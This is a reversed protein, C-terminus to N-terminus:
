RRPNGSVSHTRYSAITGAALAVLWVAAPEPIPRLVAIADIDLGGGASATPFPDNIPNGLLDFTGFQPDLSGVADIIRVQTVANIDLLPSVGALEALDFATGVGAPHKGVLNRIDRPDLGDFAGLQTTTPTLSVSAFRFFNTGDSSVEVFGLEAFLIGNFAFSNEFVAFDPGARDALPADFAVTISGGDGLSVVKTFDADADSVGLANNEVGFSALGNAPDAISRPGRVFEVVSTAWREVRLDTAAVGDLAPDYPGAVLPTILFLGCLTSLLHKM